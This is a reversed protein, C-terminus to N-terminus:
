MWFILDKSKSLFNSMPFTSLTSSAHNRYCCDVGNRSLASTGINWYAKNMSREDRGSGNIRISCYEDVIISFCKDIYFVFSVIIKLSFYFGKWTQVSNMLPIESEVNFYLNDIGLCIWSFTTDMFPLSLRQELDALTKWIVVCFDKIPPPTPPELCKSTIMMAQFAKGWYITLNLNLYSMKTTQQIQYGKWTSWVKM